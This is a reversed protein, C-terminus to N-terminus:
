PLLPMGAVGVFGLGPAVRPLSEVVDVAREHGTHQRDRNDLSALGSPLPERTRDVRQGAFRHHTVALRQLHAGAVFETLVEGPGEVHLVQGGGTLPRVDPLGGPTHGGAHDAPQDHTVAVVGPQPYRGPESWDLDEDQDDLVARLDSGPRVLDDALKAVGPNRATSSSCVSMLKPRRAM